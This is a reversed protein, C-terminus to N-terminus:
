VHPVVQGGGPPAIEVDRAVGGFSYLKLAEADARTMGTLQEFDAYPGSSPAGLAMQFLKLQPVSHAEMLAMFRGWPGSPDLVQGPAPDAFAEVRLKTQGAAVRVQDAASGSRAHHKAVHSLIFGRFVESWPNKPDSLVSSIQWDLLDLVAEFHADTAPLGEVIEAEGTARNTQTMTMAVGSNFLIDVRGNGRLGVQGPGDVRAADTYVAIFPQQQDTRLGQGNPHDFASIQSDLVNHGVLTDGAKLAEIAAIRLAMMMLSM